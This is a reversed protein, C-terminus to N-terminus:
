SAPVELDRDLRIQLGSGKPLTVDKGKPALIAVAGGISGLALGRSINGFVAGLVTGAAVGIAGKTLIGRTDTPAEVKGEEGVKEKSVPDYVTVLSAALPEEGSRTHIRDFRLVLSAKGTMGALRKPAELKSIQGEVSSGRPIVTRGNVVVDQAVDATFSDGVKNASTSLDRNLLLNMTTGRPVLMTRASLGPSAAALIVALVSVAFLSHPVARKM